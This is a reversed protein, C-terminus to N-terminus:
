SNVIFKKLRTKKLIYSSVTSTQPMQVALVLNETLKIATSFHLAGDGAQATGPGEVSLPQLCSAAQLMQMGKWGQRGPSPCERCDYRHLEGDEAISSKYLAGSKQYSFPRTSFNLIQLKMKM